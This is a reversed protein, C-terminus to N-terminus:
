LHVPATIAASCFRLKEILACIEVVCVAFQKPDLATDFTKQVSHCSFQSVETEVSIKSRGRRPSMESMPGAALDGNAAHLRLLRLVV